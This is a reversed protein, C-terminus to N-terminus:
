ANKAALYYHNDGDDQEQGIVTLGEASLMRCYAEAGLSVSELGTLVDRWECAQEPATFLFRGGPVLARSVKRVVLGQSEPNLLFMLGWAMVGDFTRRFLDSAEVANCEAAVNPFRHRFAAIMSPSADIGCLVVGEELLAQALPVGNGCGLDLVTAHPPLSRAWTRVQEEGMNSRTAMFRQAVLEYGNSRDSAPVEM